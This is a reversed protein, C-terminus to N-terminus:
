RLIVRLQKRITGWKMDPATLTIRRPLSPNISALYIHLAKMRLTLNKRGDRIRWNPYVRRTATSAEKVSCENFFCEVFYSEAALQERADDDSIYHSDAHKRQNKEIWEEFRERAREGLLMNSYFSKKNKVAWKGMTDIQSLIYLRPDIRATRCSSIVSDLASRWRSTMQIYRSRGGVKKYESKFYELLDDIRIDVVQSEKKLYQVWEDVTKKSHFFDFLKVCRSRHKCTECKEEKVYTAYCSPRAIKVPMRQM